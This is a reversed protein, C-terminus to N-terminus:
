SANSTKNNRKNKADNVGSIKMPKGGGQNWEKIIKDGKSSLGHLNTRKGSHHLLHGPAFQPDKEKPKPPRGRKGKERTPEEPLDDVQCVTSEALMSDDADAILTALALCDKHNLDGLASKVIADISITPPIELLQRIDIDSQPTDGHQALWVWYCWHSQPDQIYWPCGVTQDNIYALAQCCPEDPLESLRRPCVAQYRNM